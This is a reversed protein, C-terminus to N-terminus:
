IHWSIASYKNHHHLFDTNEKKYYLIIDSGNWKKLGM